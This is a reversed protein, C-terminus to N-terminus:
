LGEELIRLVSIFVPDLESGASMTRSGYLPYISNANLSTYLDKIAIKRMRVAM